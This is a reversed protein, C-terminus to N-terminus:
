LPNQTKQPNKSNRHFIKWPNELPKKILFASQAGSRRFGRRFVTHNQRRPQTWHGIYCVGVMGDRSFAPSRELDSTPQVRRTTHTPIHTGPVNPGGCWVFIPLRRAPALASTFLLDCLSDGFTRTCVVDLVHPVFKPGVNRTKKQSNLVRFFCLAKFFL